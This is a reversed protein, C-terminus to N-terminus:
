AHDICVRSFIDSTAEALQRWDFQRLARESGTDGLRKALDADDLISRLALHLSEVNRPEVLLGTELHKVAYPVGGIRSGVVPLGVAGAEIFVMGFGETSSTSPMALVTSLKYYQALESHDVYGVFHVASAVGAAAAQARYMDVGNGKGVIMLMTEPSERNILAFTDILVSLGKYQQTRELSGAFLIIRRGEFHKALEAGVAVSPNFRSLDVGPTVVTIQERHRELYRSERIYYESTAIIRDSARLTRNIVTLHILRALLSGLLSDKALDNHYTLVFPIAGSAREAVDALYPVPTHANIVDPRETAFIRRLQRRWCVGLPTNSVTMVTRLSYLKMGEFSDLKGRASRDTTVIVVTWGLARLHMAISSTYTEVGGAHPYFYPAVLVAKVKPIRTM